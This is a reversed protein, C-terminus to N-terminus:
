CAEKAAMAEAHGASAGVHEAELTRSVAQMSVLTRPMEQGLAPFVREAIHMHTCM